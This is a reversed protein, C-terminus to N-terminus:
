ILYVNEWIKSLLLCVFLFVFYESCRCFSRVHIDMGKMSWFLFFLVLFYFVFKIENCHVFSLNEVVFPIIVSITKAGHEICPSYLHDHLSVEHIWYIDIHHRDVVLLNKRKRSVDNTAAARKVESNLGNKTRSWRNRNFVCM